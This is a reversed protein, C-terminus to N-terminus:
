LLSSPFSPSSDTINFASKALGGGGGGGGGGVELRWELGNHLINFPQFPDPSCSVIFSVALRTHIVLIHGHIGDTVFTM